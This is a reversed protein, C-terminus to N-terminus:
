CPGEFCGTRLALAWVQKILLRSCIDILEVWASSFITIRLGALAADSTLIYGAKYSYNNTCSNGGVERRKFIYTSWFFFTYHM